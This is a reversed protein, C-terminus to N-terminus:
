NSELIINLQHYLLGFIISVIVCNLIIWLHGKSWVTTDESKIGL